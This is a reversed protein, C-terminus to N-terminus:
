AAGMLKHAVWGTFLILATGLMAALLKKIPSKESDEGKPRPWFEVVVCMLGYAWATGIQRVGLPVIFWTWMTKGAWATFLMSPGVLLLTATIDLLTKENKTM